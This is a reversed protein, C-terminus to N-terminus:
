PRANHLNCARNFIRGLKAYASTSHDYGRGDRIWGSDKSLMIVYYKGDDLKEVKYRNVKITTEDSM